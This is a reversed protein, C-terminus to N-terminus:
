SIPISRFVKAGRDLYVAYQKGEWEYVLATYSNYFQGDDTKITVVGRSVIIAGTPVEDDKWEERYAEYKM